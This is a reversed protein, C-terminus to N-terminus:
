RAPCITDSENSALRVESVTLVVPAASALAFAPEVAGMDAGAAALCSLRVKLTKWEGLPAANLIDTIPVQGQGVMLMVAGEPRADVRVRFSLAMEGNAQRRLDVPAASFQVNAPGDGTFTFQLASEQALDDAPRVSVAGRPSSAEPKAGPRNQGAEANLMLSWPPVM